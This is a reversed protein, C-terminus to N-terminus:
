QNPESILIQENRSLGKKIEIYTANMQGLEVKRKEVGAGSKVYVVKDGEETHVAQVPIQVVDKLRDLEIEVSASIQPKVMDPLEGDELLIVVKYKQAGASEWYRKTQPLVDVASVKGKFKQSGLADVLVFAVQGVKISSIMQEAIFVDVKMKTMDPIRILEQNRSVEKGKEIKRSDDWYKNEPYLAYGSYPAYIKTKSIQEIYNELKKKQIALKNVASKHKAEANLRRSEGQKKLRDLKNKSEDRARTLRNKELDLDYEILLELASEATQLKKEKSSMDLRDRDVTNKSEFGKKALKMSTAYRSESLKLEDEAIEILVKADRIRQKKQLKIFKELNMEMVGIQSEAEVLESKIKSLEIALSNKTEVVNSQATSYSIEANRRAEELRDGDLEVLLDGKEIVSGNPVIEIIKVVGIGIENKIIKENV